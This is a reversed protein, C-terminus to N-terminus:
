GNECYEEVTRYGEVEADILYALIVGGGEFFCFVEVQLHMRCSDLCALSVGKCSRCDDESGRSDLWVYAKVNETFFKM